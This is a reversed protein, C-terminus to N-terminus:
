NRLDPATDATVIMIRPSPIRVGPHFAAFGFLALLLIAQIAARRLGGPNHAIMLMFAFAIMAAGALASARIIRDIFLTEAMARELTGGSQAAEQRGVPMPEGEESGAHIPQEPTGGALLVGTSPLELPHPSVRSTFSPIPTSQVLPSPSARVRNPSSLVHPVSAAISPTFPQGFFQVIILTPSGNFIGPQAAVGIQEYRANLINARHSPSNMFAYHADNLNLFDIALNEGAAKYAYGEKQLFVWPPKGDPTHHAFYHGNFMDNAKRQAARELAANRSLPQLGEKVRSENVLAIVARSDFIDYLDALTAFFYRPYGYSVGILTAAIVILFIAQPCAFVHPVRQNQETPVIFHKVAEFLRTM